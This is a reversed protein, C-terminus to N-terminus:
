FFFLFWDPKFYIFVYISGWSIIPTTIFVTIILLTSQLGAKFSDMHHKPLFYLFSMEKGQCANIMNDVVVVDYGTNVLEVVTHSGIYGAGGTVLVSMTRRFCFSFSLSGPSILM